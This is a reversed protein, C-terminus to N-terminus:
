PSMQMSKENASYYAPVALYTSDMNGGSTMPSAPGLYNNVTDDQEGLLLGASESKKLVDPSPPPLRLDLLALYGGVASMLWAFCASVFSFSLTAGHDYYESACWIIIAIFLFLNTAFALCTAMFVLRRDKELQKHFIFLFLFIVSGSITVVSMTMFAQTARVWTKWWLVWTQHCWGNTCSTWLGDRRDDSVTWYPLSYALAVLVWAVWLVFFAYRAYITVSFLGSM